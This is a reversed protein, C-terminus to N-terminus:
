MYILRSYIITVIAWEAPYDINILSDFIEVTDLHM